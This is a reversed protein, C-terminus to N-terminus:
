QKHNQCANQEENKKRRKKKRVTHTSSLTSTKETLVNIWGDIALMTRREKKEKKEKTACL